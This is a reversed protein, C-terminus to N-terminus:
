SMTEPFLEVWSAIQQSKANLDSFLWSIMPELSEFRMLHELGCTFKAYNSLNNKLIVSGKGMLFFRFFHLTANKVSSSRSNQKDRM